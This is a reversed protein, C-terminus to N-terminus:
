GKEVTRILKATIAFVRIEGRLRIFSGRKDFQKELVM